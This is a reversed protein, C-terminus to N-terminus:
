SAASAPVPASELKTFIQLTDIGGFLVRSLFDDLSCSRYDARVMLRRCSGTDQAVYYGAYESLLSGELDTKAEWAGSLAVQSMGRLLLKQYEVWHTFESSREGSVGGVLFEALESILQSAANTDRLIVRMLTGYHAEGCQSTNWADIYHLFINRFLLHSEVRGEMCYQVLRNLMEAYSLGHVANLQRIIFKLIGCYLVPVILRLGMGKLWDEYPLRDHGILIDADGHRSFRTLRSKIGYQKRMQPNNYETNNLLLLPHLVPTGGTSIVAAVGNLFSEYSEGPMGFILETYTPVGLNKFHEQLTRYYEFPINKRDAIKLVEDNLSQASLSIATIIGQRYLVTAAEIVRKTTNKAWNTVMLVQKKHKQVLDALVHATEVDADIMGFNADAMWIKTGPGAHSVIFELDHKIRDRSFRRTKTGIAGGWFCFACKFPCGRSFEYTIDPSAALAEESFLGGLFPSPISDLEDIRPQPATTVIGKRGDRFSVGNVTYFDSGTELYRALLNAFILEGEGNVVVDVPSDDALLTEAQDTVDNGGFVVLADPLVTKIRKALAVNVRRNWFFNTFGFVHRESQANDISRRIEQWGPELGGDLLRCHRSFHCRGAIRPDAEAFAQLYGLTLSVSTRLVTLDVLHCSLETKM